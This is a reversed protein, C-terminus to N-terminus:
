GLVSGLDSLVSWRFEDRTQKRSVSLRSCVRFRVTCVVVNSFHPHTIHLLAASGVPEQEM